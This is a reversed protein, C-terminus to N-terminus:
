ITNVQCGWAHLYNKNHKTVKGTIYGSDDYTNVYQIINDAELREYLNDCNLGNPVQYAITGTSLYLVLLLNAM